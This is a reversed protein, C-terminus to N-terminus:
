VLLLLLLLSVVKEMGYYTCNREWNTGGGVGSSGPYRLLTREKGLALAVWGFWVGVNTDKDDDGMGLERHRECFGGRFEQHKKPM